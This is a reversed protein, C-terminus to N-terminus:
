NSNIRYSKERITLIIDSHTTTLITTAARGDKENEISALQSNQVSCVFITYIICWMSYMSETYITCVCMEACINRINPQWKGFLSLQVTKIYEYENLTKINNNYM